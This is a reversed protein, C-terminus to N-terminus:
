IKQKGKDIIHSSTCLSYTGKEEEFNNFISQEGLRSLGPRCDTFKIRGIDDRM